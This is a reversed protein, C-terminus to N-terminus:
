LQLSTVDLLDYVSLLPIKHYILNAAPPVNELNREMEPTFDSPTLM